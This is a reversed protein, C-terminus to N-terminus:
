HTARDILSKKSLIKNWDILLDIILVLTAILYFSVIGTFFAAIEEGSGSPVNSLKRMVVIAPTISLAIVGVLDIRILLQRNLERFLTRASIGRYMQQKQRDTIVLYYFLDILFILVLYAVTSYVHIEFISVFFISGAALLALVLNIAFSEALSTGDAIWLPKWDIGWKKSKDIVPRAIEIVTKEYFGNYIFFDQVTYQAFVSVIMAVVFILELVAEFDASRLTQHFVAGTKVLGLAHPFVSLWGLALERNGSVLVVFTLVFCIGLTILVWFMGTRVAHWANWPAKQEASGATGADPTAKETEAM